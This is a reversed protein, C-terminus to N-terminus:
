LEYIPNFDFHHNKYHGGNVVSKIKKKMRLKLCLM